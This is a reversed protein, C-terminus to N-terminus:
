RKGKRAAQSKSRLVFAASRGRPANAAGQMLLLEGKIRYLEAEFSREGIAEMSVIGQALVELAAGPGQTSACAEALFGFTAPTCVGAGRTGLAANRAARGSSGVASIASSSDKLTKREADSVIGSLVTFGSSNAEEIV